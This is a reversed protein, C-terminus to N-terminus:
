RYEIEEDQDDDGEAAFVITCTESRKWVTLSDRVHLWSPLTVHLVCHFEAALQQQFEPSSSRGWPAQDMALCSDLFTEGVHVVYQGRYHRLCASGLSMPSGDSLLPSNENIDDDAYCLFLTRNRNDDNELVNPGGKRVPFRGIAPSVGSPHSLLGGTEPKIDYGVIDIGPRQMISCWYANSGCGIEILPSFNKLIRIARDDPTAWSYQDILREGLNAQDM